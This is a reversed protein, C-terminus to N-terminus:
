GSGVGVGVGLGLGLWADGLTVRVVECARSPQGRLIDIEGLVRELHSKATCSGLLLSAM